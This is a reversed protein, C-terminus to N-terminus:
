LYQEIIDQLWVEMQHTQNGRQHQQDKDGEM